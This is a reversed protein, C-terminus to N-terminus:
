AALREPMPMAIIADLQRLLSHCHPCRPKEGIVMWPTQGKPTIKWLRNSGEIAEVNVPGLHCDSNLCFLQNM